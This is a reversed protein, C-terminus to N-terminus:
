VHPTRVTDNNLVILPFEPKAAGGGCLLCSKGKRNHFHPIEDTNARCHSVSFSLELKKKTKMCVKGLHPSLKVTRSWVDLLQLYDRKHSLGVSHELFRGPNM